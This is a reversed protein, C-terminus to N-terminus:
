SEHQRGGFGCWKTLHIRFNVTLPNLIVKHIPNTTKLKEKENYSQIIKPLQPNEAFEPELRSTELDGTEWGGASSSVEALTCDQFLLGALQEACDPTL